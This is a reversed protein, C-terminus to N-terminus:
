LTWTHLQSPTLYPPNVCANQVWFGHELGQVHGSLRMSLFSVQSLFLPIYVSLYLFFLVLLQLFYLFILYQIGIFLGVFCFSCIHVHLTHTFSTPMDPLTEQWPYCRSCFCMGAAMPSLLLWWWNGLPEHIVYHSSRVSALPAARPQHRPSPTM